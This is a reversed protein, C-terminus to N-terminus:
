FYKRHAGIGNDNPDNGHMLSDSAQNEEFTEEQEDNTKLFYRIMALDRWSVVIVV